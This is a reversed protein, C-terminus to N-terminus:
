GAPHVQFDGVVHFLITITGIDTHGGLSIIKDDISQSRAMLLCLSTASPKELSSLASLTGPALGLQKDLHTMVESLVAHSRLFFQKCDERHRQFEKPDRRTSNTGLVEDRSITYLEMSDMKGDDIKLVGAPKYCSHRSYRDCTLGNLDKPINLKYDMLVEPGLNIIDVSVDYMIEADKVIRKGEKSNHFDLFFFWQERCAEYLNKSEEASNGLLDLYSITPIGAISIDSPFEPCEKFYKSTPM